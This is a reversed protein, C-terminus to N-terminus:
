LVYERSLKHGAWTGSVLASYRTRVDGEGECGNCWATHTRAYITLEIPAKAAAERLQKLREFQQETLTVCDETRFRVERGACDDVHDHESAVMRGYRKYEAAFGAFVHDRVAALLETQALVNERHREQMSETGHAALWANVTANNEADERANWQEALARALDAWNAGFAIRAIENNEYSVTWKNNASDRRLKSEIGRERLVGALEECNRAKQAEEEARRAAKLAKEANIKEYACDIADVAERWLTEPVASLIEGTQRYHAGLADEIIRRAHPADWQYAPLTVAGQPSIAARIRLWEILPMELVTDATGPAAGHRALWDVREKAKQPVYESPNWQITVSASTIGSM